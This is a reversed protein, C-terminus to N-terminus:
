AARGPHYYGQWADQWQRCTNEAAQWSLNSLRRQHRWAWALSHPLPDDFLSRGSEAEALALFRDLALQCYAPSRCSGTLREAEGSARRWLKLALEQSIGSRAAVWPLIKPARM